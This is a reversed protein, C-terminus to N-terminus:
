SDSNSRAEYAKEENYYDDVFRKFSEFSLFSKVAEGESTRLIETSVNFFGILETVGAVMDEFNTIGICINFNLYVHAPVDTEHHFVSLPYLGGLREQRLKYAETLKRLYKTVEKFDIDELAEHKHNYMNDLM